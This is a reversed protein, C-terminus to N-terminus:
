CWVQSPQPSYEAEFIASDPDWGKQVTLLAEKLGEWKVHKSAMVGEVDDTFLAHYRVSFPDSGSTHHPSTLLAILHDRLWQWDPIGSKDYGM